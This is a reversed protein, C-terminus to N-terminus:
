FGYDFGVVTALHSALGSHNIPILASATLLLTGRINVKAGFSGLVQTLPDLGSNILSFFITNGGQDPDVVDGFRDADLKTRGMVDVVITLRAHAIVDVGGSYSIEVARNGAIRTLNDHNLPFVARTFVRKPPMSVGVNVHPAFAGLEASGIAALKLRASGTGRLNSADGTALRLDAGAALGGGGRQYFNYKTKVVVDGIGAASGSRRTSSTLTGNRFGQLDADVRVRIFPVVIGVDLRPLLGVEAVFGTTDSTLNLALIGTSGPGEHLRLATLDKGEFRDFRAHQVNVGFSINRQGVTLARETFSPGFSRTSRRAIGLNQDFEYTFGGSSTGIPYTAVQETISQNLSDAIDEDVSIGFGSALIDSLTSGAPSQAAAAHPFLVCGIVAM